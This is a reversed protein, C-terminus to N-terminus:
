IYIRSGSCAFVAAKRYVLPPHILTQTVLVARHFGETWGESQEGDRALWRATLSEEQAHMSIHSSDAPAAENGSVADTQPDM